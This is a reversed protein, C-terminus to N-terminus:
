AHSEEPRVAESLVRRFQELAQEDDIGLQRVAVGLPELLSRLQATKAEGAETMTREAVVLPLGPRRVVLGEEELLGYAKSVTMPNVGLEQSLARTSPLESGAAVLGATVQFRAQDIIQRYVPVGSNEDVVILL